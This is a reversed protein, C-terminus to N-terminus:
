ATRPLTGASLDRIDNEIRAARDGVLPKDYCFYLFSEAYDEWEKTRGYKTPANATDEFKTGTKAQLIHGIEHVFTTEGSVTQSGERDAVVRSWDGADLFGAGDPGLMSEAETITLCNNESDMLIANAGSYAFGGGIREGRMDVLGQGYYVKLGEFVTGLNNGFKNRLVEKAKKASDLLQSPIEGEGLFICDIGDTNEFVRKQEDPYIRLLDAIYQKEQDTRSIDTDVQMDTASPTIDKRLENVPEEKAKEFGSGSLFKEKQNGASFSTYAEIGRQPELELYDKHFDEDDPIDQQM